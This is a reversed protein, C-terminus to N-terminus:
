IYNLLIVFMILRFDQNRCNNKCSKEEIKCFSDKKIPYGGFSTDKYGPPVHVTIADEKFNANVPENRCYWFQTKSSLYFFSEHFIRVTRPIVFNILNSCEFVIGSGVEKLKTNSPIILQRLSHMHGFASYSIDTVTYPIAIMKILDCLYFAHSSIRSVEYTIGQYNVHSPIIIDESFTSSVATAKGFEGYGVDLKKCENLQYNLVGVTIKDGINLGM